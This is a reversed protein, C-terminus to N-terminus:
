IAITMEKSTKNGQMDFTIVKVKNSKQPIFNPHYYVLRDDEPEYETLGRRGNVYIRTNQYDVGSRNDTAPIYVLWKEDPSKVISPTGLKPPAIDSLLLFRGM